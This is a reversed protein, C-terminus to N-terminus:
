YKICLDKYHGKKRNTHSCNFIRPSSHKDKKRMVYIYIHIHTSSLQPRQNWAFLVAVQVTTLELDYTGSHTKFSVMGDSM